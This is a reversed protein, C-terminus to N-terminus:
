RRDGIKERSSLGKKLSAISRWDTPPKGLKGTAFDEQVLGIAAFVQEPKAESRFVKLQVATVIELQHLATFAIPEGVVGAAVDASEREPYYLKM